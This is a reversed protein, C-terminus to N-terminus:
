EKKKKFSNYQDILIESGRQIAYLVYIIVYAVFGLPLVILLSLLLLRYAEDQPPTILGVTFTFMLLMIIGAMAYYFIGLIEPNLLKRISNDEKKLVPRKNADYSLYLFYAALGLLGLVIAIETM